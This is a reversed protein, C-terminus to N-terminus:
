EKEELCGGYKDECIKKLYDGSFFEGTDIGSEIVSEFGNKLCFSAMEKTLVSQVVLEPINKEICYNELKQSVITMTGRRKNKFAVRSVILKMSPMLLLRLETEQDKSKFWLSRRTKELIKLKCDDNKEILKVIEDFDFIDLKQLICNM